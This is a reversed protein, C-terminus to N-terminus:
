ICLLQILELLALARKNLASTEKLSLEGALNIPKSKTLKLINKIKKLENEDPASTIIVKLNLESEIFDIIKASLEDKICKFFWRSVPHFHIFNKKELNLENFIDDIKKDVRDDWFIEVRKSIPKKGLTKLALLNIDIWHKWQITEKIPHTIFRNLYKKKSPFSVIKKPNALISLM